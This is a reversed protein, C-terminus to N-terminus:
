FSQKSKGSALNCLYKSIKKLRQKLRVLINMLLKCVPIETPRELILVTASLRKGSTLFNKCESIRDAESIKFESITM